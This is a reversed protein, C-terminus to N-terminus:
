YNKCTKTLFKIFIDYNNTYPFDKLPKVKSLEQHCATLAEQPTKFSFNNDKESCASFTVAMMAVVVLIAHRIGHKITQEM